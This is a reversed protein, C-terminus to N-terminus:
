VNEKKLSPVIDETMQFFKIAGFIIVFLIVIALLFGGWVDFNDIQFFNLQDLNKSTYVAVSEGVNNTPSCDIYIDNAIATKIINGNNRVSITTPITSPIFPNTLTINSPVRINAWLNTKEFHVITYTINNIIENKYFNADTTGSLFSNIDIGNVVNNTNGISINLLDNLYANNLNTVSNNNGQKTKSVNTFIPLIILIQNNPNNQNHNYDNLYGQLILQYISGSPKNQSVIANKEQNLTSFVSTGSLFIKDLTYYSATTESNNIKDIIAMVSLSSNNNLLTIPISIGTSNSKNLITTTSQYNFSTEKNFYYSLTTM